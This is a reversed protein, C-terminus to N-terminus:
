RASLAYLALSVADAASIGALAGRAPLFLYWAALGGLALALLGPGVGGALTAILVAPFLTAFGTIGPALTDLTLRAVIALAICLLALGYALSPQHRGRGRQLCRLFSLDVSM